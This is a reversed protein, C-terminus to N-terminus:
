GPFPFTAPSRFGNKGVARIGFVANDKSLNVTTTDVLGVPIVNTWLPDDTARWVVEYGAVEGTSDLTWSFTSNNTLVSTDITVNKPTEPANALSWLIAGNVRGVRTIFNFDCFEALDGFQKGTSDVRVDQHQHAFDENPETFRAAPFGADLFPEHDGGRLFRDARYIVRVKMDTVSNSAVENAFRALQRAPSDNEGGISIRQSTKSATESSPIGQAFLRISNADLVGDDAKSAGVIDNTFMGQVDMGAEVMQKALFAAGFLGQEEGAVAGLIVTAKPPARTALIRALEMAVAVGSGDDDAGPADDTFNMIDTVRSDYHGTIIYVRNSKESGQITTIINSINVNFPISEAPGQIYSPVTVTVNTGKRANAAFGRMQSAIWDRAAGIGRQPDTQNSLTHRTGFSVLKTIIAEVRKPDIESLISTLEADPAQPVLTTGPGVPWADTAFCQSDSSRPIPPPLQLIRLSSAVNAFSIFLLFTRLVTVTSSLFM